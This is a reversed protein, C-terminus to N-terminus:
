SSTASRSATASWLSAACARRCSIRSCADRAGGGVGPPRLIRRAQRGAPRRRLHVGRLRRRRGCIGATRRVDRRARRGARAARDGARFRRSRAPGSRTAPAAPRRARGRGPEHARAAAAPARRAGLHPQGPRRHLDHSRARGHRAPRRRDAGANKRIRPLEVDLLRAAPALTWGQVILSVLVVVFAVEFYITANEVGVLVPITGLFIAVAGRLGVWGVFAHENWAFRFPLLCLVTAVPRAILVLFLAILVAPVLTPLLQSPTM